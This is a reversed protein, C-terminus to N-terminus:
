LFECLQYKVPTWTEFLNPVHAQICKSQRLSILATKDCWFAFAYIFTVPSRKTTCTIVDSIHREIDINDSLEDLGFKQFM